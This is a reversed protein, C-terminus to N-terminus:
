YKAYYDNEVDKQYVLQYQTTYSTENELNNDMGKDWMRFSRMKGFPDFMHAAIHLNSTTPTV